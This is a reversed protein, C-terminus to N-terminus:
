CHRSRGAGTAFGCGVSALAAAGASGDWGSFAIGGLWRAKQRVAAGLTAPFYGRSAVVGREGPEAPIRVFM